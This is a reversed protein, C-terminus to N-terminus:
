AARHRRKRKAASLAEDVWRREKDTLPGGTRDLADALLSEWGAADQLAVDVARKVFASVNPARKSAVLKRVQVLQDDDLTITVKTTAMGTAMGSRFPRTSSSARVAVDSSERGISSRTQRAPSRSSSRQRAHLSIRSCVTMAASASPFIRRLTQPM